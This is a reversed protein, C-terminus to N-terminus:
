GAAVRELAPHSEYFWPARVHKEISMPGISM